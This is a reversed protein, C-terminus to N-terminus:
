VHYQAGNAMYLNNCIAWTNLEENVSFLLSQKELKVECNENDMNCNQNNAAYRLLNIVDNFRPLPYYIVVGFSADMRNVQNSPATAEPYTFIIRGVQKMHEDFCEIYAAEWPNSSASYYLCQYQCFYHVHTHNNNMHNTKPLFSLLSVQQGFLVFTVGGPM